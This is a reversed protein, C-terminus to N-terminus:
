LNRAHKGAHPAAEVGALHLCISAHLGVPLGYFRQTSVVTQPDNHIRDAIGAFWLPLSTRTVTEVCPPLFERDGDHQVSM